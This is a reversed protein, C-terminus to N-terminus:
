LRERKGMRGTLGDWTGILLSWFQRVRNQEAMLCVVTDHIQRYLARLVWAPFSFLYKRYFAISNRSIYYRRLADHRSHQFERGFVSLEAPNGPSHWLKARNSQGILFGAARIRFAYEWDVLDIFYESAFWGITDFIWVPMLSGSTMPFIPSGDAARPIHLEIGAKPDVYRPHISAVRKRGPHTDWADFMQDIFGPTVASDQDFLIVWDYQQAIAWRVGQNLAEAIGSNDSNEILHFCLASSAARLPSIEDDSSGNDIVVLKQVQPLINRLHEVVTENPRYTVVVACVPQVSMTGAQSRM